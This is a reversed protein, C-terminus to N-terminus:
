DLKVCRVSARNDKRMNEMQLVPCLYRIHAVRGQVSNGPESSWFYADGLLLRYLDTPRDYYGAPLASFGTENTAETDDLWEGAERLANSGYPILREYHIEGPLYWGDPCIGQPYAVARSPRVTRSASYWDYLYGYKMGNALSDRYGTAYYSGYDSVASGDSYRTSHLNEATWCDCGIRVTSYENGEYDVAILTAVSDVTGDLKYITDNIGCPKYNLVLRLTCTKTLTLNGTDTVSWEIEYVGSERIAGEPLNNTIIYGDNPVVGGNVEVKPEQLIISSPPVGYDLTVLTDEPCLINFIDRRYVNVEFECRAENGSSDVAIWTVRTIGEIFTVGDLTTGEGTMANSFRYYKRAIGDNDTATVDWGTGSHTYSTVPPNVLINQNGIDECSIGGDCGICPPVTDKVIVMFSCNNTGCENTATVTVVTIDRNFANGTGTGAGNGQTSGTFLYSIATVDNEFSLNYNVIVSSGTEPLYAVLADAPCDIFLPTNKVRVIIPHIVSECNGDSSRAYFVTDSVPIVNATIENTALSDLYYKVVSLPPTINSITLSLNVNTGVCVSDPANVTFDPLTTSYFMLRISDVGSQCDTITDRSRVYFIEPTNVIFVPTELPDATAYDNYFIVTDNVSINSIYDMLNVMTGICVTAEREINFKSFTDLVTVTFNGTGINPDPVPVTDPYYSAPIFDKGYATIETIGPNFTIGELTNPVSDAITAGTLRYWVRDLNCNDTIDGDLLTSDNVFSGCDNIYVTTDRVNVVPAITDIFYPVAQEYTASCNNGYDVVVRYLGYSSVSYTSGTAGSIMRDNKYWKYSLIDGISKPDLIYPLDHCAVVTDSLVNYTQPPTLFNFNTNGGLDTGVADFAITACGSGVTDILINRPNFFPFLRGCSNPFRLIAQRGNATLDSSTLTFIRCLTSHIILTDQITVSSGALITHNSTTGGIYSYDVTDAVIQGTIRTTYNRLTLKGILVQQTTDATLNANVSVSEFSVPMANYITVNSASTKVGESRFLASDQITFIQNGNSRFTTNSIDVVHGDKQVIEINTYSRETTNVTNGYIYLSGDTSLFRSMSMNGYIYLPGTGTHQNYHGTATYNGYLYCAESSEFYFYSTTVNGHVYLSGSKHFITSGTINGQVDYRGGEIYLNLYLPIGNTKIYQADVNTDKGVLRIEFNGNLNMTMGAALELSGNIYLDKDNNIVGNYFVPLSDGAGPRWFMSGIDVRYLNYYVTDGKRLFSNEDFVVSNSDSPIVCHPNTVAPDGGSVEISWHKPDDWNGTGGVWYFTGSQATIAPEIMVNNRNNGGDIGQLVWLTDGVVNLYSVTARSIIAPYFLRFVPSSTGRRTLVTNDNCGCPDETCADPLYFYKRVYNTDLNNGSAFSYTRNISLILSDTDFGTSSFYASSQFDLKNFRSGRVRFDLSSQAPPLTTLNHYIFNTSAYMNAHLYIHSDSFDYATLNQHYLTCIRTVLVSGSLDLYRGATGPQSQSIFTGGESKITHHNAIFGGSHHFISQSTKFDSVLTYNGTGSFYVNATYITDPTSRVTHEGNGSFYLISAIGEPIVGSFDASGAIYLPNEGILKGKREPIIWYIGKCVGPIDLIISDSTNVFSNEDVFVTDVITPVCGSPGQVPGDPSTAWHSPDSWNGTGGRWYYGTATGGPTFTVNGRNGGMDDSEPATWMAGTFNFGQFGLNQTSQVVPTNLTSGVYGSFQSKEACDSTHIGVQNLVVNVPYFFIFNGQDWLELNQISLRATNTAIGKIMIDNRARIDMTDVEMVFLNTAGTVNSYLFSLESSANVQLYNTVINFPVGWLTASFKAPQNLFVRNINHISRGPSQYSNTRFFTFEAPADVILEEMNVVIGTQVDITVPSEVLVKKLHLNRVAEIEGINYNIHLTDNNITLNSFYPSNNGGTYRINFDPSLVVLSDIILETNTSTACLYGVTPNRFEIIKFHSSQNFCSPGYAIFHCDEFYSSNGYISNYYSSASTANHTTTLTTGSFDVIRDTYNGTNIRNATVDHGLTYFYTEFSSLISNVNLDNALEVRKGPKTFYLTAGLRSQAAPNVDIIFRSTTDEDNNVMHVSSIYLNINGNSIIDGAINARTASIIFPVTADECVLSRMNIINPDATLSVQTSTAPFHVNDNLSPAFAPSEGLGDPTISWNRPSNFNRDVPNQRWYLDRGQGYVQSVSLFLLFFSFLFKLLTFIKREM